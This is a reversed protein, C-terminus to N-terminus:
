GVFLTAAFPMNGPRVHSGSKWCRAGVKKCLYLTIKREKQVMLAFMVTRTDKGLCGDCFCTVLSPLLSM